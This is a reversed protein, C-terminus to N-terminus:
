LLETGQFPPGGILMRTSAAPMTSFSAGDPFIGDTVSVFLLTLMVLPDLKQCRATQSDCSLASIWPLVSAPAALSKCNWNAEPPAESIPPGLAASRLKKTPWCRAPAAPTTIASGFPFEGIVTCFLVNAGVAPSGKLM